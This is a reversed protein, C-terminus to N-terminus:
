HKSCLSFWSAPSIVTDVDSFGPSLLPDGKDESGLFCDVKGSLISLWVNAVRTLVCFTGRKGEFAAQQDGIFDWAVGVPVRNWGSHKM